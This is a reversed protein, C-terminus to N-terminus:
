RKPIWAWTYECVVPQNGEEDVIEVNVKVEGKENTRIYEIQEETLTAVATLDGKSRKVYNVNMNVLLPIRSDPIHMGVLIGTASEGLLATAAAHVSGIHNQAKKVNPQKLKAETFSLSLVKIGATGAFKVTRCFLQSLLFSHFRKPLMQIKSVVKGLKNINKM